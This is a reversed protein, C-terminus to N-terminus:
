EKSLLIDYFDGMVDRLGHDNVAEQSGPRSNAEVMVWGTPTLAMDWGIMEQEPVIKVLDEVLNNLEPWKPIKAGLIQVGTDPHFAYKEGKFSKAYTYAIGYKMDISVFIGGYTANDVESGNRGMRLVACIKTLRDNHYFTVFRVTNVSGQYFKAIDPDQTILEEVVSDGDRLIEDFLEAAEDKDHAEAIHIGKGGCERIPKIIFRCHREIFSYFASFDTESSIKIVERGYYKQYVQYTKYKDSYIESIKEVFVKRWYVALRPIGVFENRGFDNLRRFDYLFYEKPNIMYRFYSYIIDSKVKKGGGYPFVNTAAEIEEALSKSLGLNIIVYQIYSCIRCLIKHESIFLLLKDKISEKHRKM